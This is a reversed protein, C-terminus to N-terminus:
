ATRAKSVVREERDKNQRRAAIKLRYDDGRMEVLDAMETLRSMIRPDIANVERPELNSTALIRKGQSHAQGILHLIAVRASETEKEAGLDDILIFNASDLLDDVVNAPNGYSGQVELTFRLADVYRGRSHRAVWEAMIGVALHTKGTGPPGFFFASRRESAVRKAFGLRTQLDKTYADFNSLRCDSYRRPVRWSELSERLEEPSM